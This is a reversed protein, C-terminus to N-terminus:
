GATDMQPAAAIARYRDHSNTLHARMAQRAKAEDHRSIAELIAGHEGAIRTLYSRRDELTPIQSVMSQRPIVIQGLSSLIRAFFPNGTAECIAKHFGYDAGIALEGVKAGDVFEQQRESIAAIADPTARMAALGAAEVELGVRLELIQLVREISQADETSIRFLGQGPAATVFAGVGQRTVVLGEARLAAVAERVVTRSVGTLKVLEQETPLKEGPKIRGSRIDESLM